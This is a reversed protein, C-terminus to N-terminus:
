PKQSQSLNQQCFTKRQIFLMDTIEAFSLCTLYCGIMMMVTIIYNCDYFGYHARLSM